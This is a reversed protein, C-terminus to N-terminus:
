SSYNVLETQAELRMQERLAVPAIVEGNPRWDRLRMVINIDGLRIWARYYEDDPNKRSLTELITTQETSDSITRRVLPSIDAYDIPEFTAHRDTHQVYRQAFAPSFRMILLQKPLYFNFGWAEALAASVTKPEPLQGQGHMSKLAAPVQEDQWDLLTLQASVIRDLRYNHWGFHGSPDSGYASLYKARRVYHLCVPYVTIPLVRSAKSNYNFQVIGGGDRWLQEIQAQLSDVQEQSSESLIYDLHIFIRREPESSLKDSSIDISPILREWLIRIIVELNPQIFAISELSRLVEWSQAISLYSLPSRESRALSVSPQETLAPWQQLDRTFFRGRGQSDLWGLESLYTLDDRISRHVTQFPQQQLM